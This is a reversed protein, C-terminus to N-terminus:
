HPNHLPKSVRRAEGLLPNARQMGLATRALPRPEAGMRCASNVPPLRKRGNRTRSLAARNPTGAACATFVAAAISHDMAIREHM